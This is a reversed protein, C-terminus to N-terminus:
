CPWLASLQGSPISHSGSACSSFPSFFSPRSFFSPNFGTRRPCVRRWPWGSGDLYVVDRAFRCGRFGRRRPSVLLQAPSQGLLHHVPGTVYGWFSDITIDPIGEVDAHQIGESVVTHGGGDGHNGVGGAQLRRGNALAELIGYAASPNGALELFEDGLADAKNEAGEERQCKPTVHASRFEKQTLVVGGDELLVPRNASCM